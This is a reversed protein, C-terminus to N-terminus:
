EIKTTFDRKDFEWDRRTKQWDAVKTLFGVVRTYYDFKTSQCIPCTTIKGFHNHNNECESYVPNLAFFECGVSCAYRIVKEAQQPTLREGINIHAIAGGTLLKDYKGSIDLREWVSADNKWLPIFQNAYMPYNAIEEGFILKDAEAFKVAMSEGPIQEFNFPAKYEIALKPLEENTIKLAMEIYDQEGFKKSLIENMEYFGLAGVTSFMKKLSIWGIDLFQQLGQKQTDKILQRHANLIKGCDRTAELVKQKMDDISTATYAIRAYNITCVRHSGLSLASGGFSNVSGAEKMLEMDSSLRCCASVRTGKSVMINYKYIERNCAEKLLYDDHIIGEDDKTLNLTVIPFAYARGNASPDGADFLDLFITQILMVMKIMCDVEPSTIDKDKYEPYIGSTVFVGVRGEDFISVNTFPSESANRSLHNVSHIFSQLANEVYKELDTDPNLNPERNLLIYAMDMFITSIAIAGALHNSMQHITECLAGTYSHLTKPPKSHLKGFPRGEKVINSADFSYCYPVLIKSSDSLGLSFDYMLGALRKAESKGYLEKMKRYLYRYGVLKNYPIASEYLIGAVTKEGKNSNADVSNDNLHGEVFNEIKGITDFSKKDLGHLKLLKEIVGNEEIKYDRKLAFSLNNRVRGQAQVIGSDEFM